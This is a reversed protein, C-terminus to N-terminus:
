MQCSSLSIYFLGLHECSASAASFWMKLNFQARGRLGAAAAHLADCSQGKPLVSCAILRAAVTHIDAPLKWGAAVPAQVM